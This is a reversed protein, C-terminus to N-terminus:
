VNEKKFQRFEVRNLRNQYNKKKVWLWMGCIVVLFAFLCIIFIIFLELGLFENYM